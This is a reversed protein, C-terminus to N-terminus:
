KNIEYNKHSLNQSLIESRLSITSYQQIINFFVDVTDHLLIALRSVSLLWFQGPILFVIKWQNVLCGGCNGRSWWIIWGMCILYFNWSIRKQNKRKLKTQMAFKCSKITKLCAKERTNGKIKMNNLNICIKCRYILPIEELQFIRTRMKLIFIKRKKNIEIIANAENYLVDSKTNKPNDLDNSVM